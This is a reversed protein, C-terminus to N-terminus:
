HITEDNAPAPAETAAPETQQARPDQDKPVAVFPLTGLYNLGTTVGARFAKLVDGELKITSLPEADFQVDVETGPTISMFHQLTKVQRDHWASIHGAFMDINEMFVMDSPAAAAEGAVPETTGQNAAETETAPAVTSPIADDDAAIHAQVWHWYPMVRLESENALFWNFPTYEPHGATGYKAKLEALSMGFDAYDYSIDARAM